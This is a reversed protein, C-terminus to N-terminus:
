WSKNTEERLQSLQERTSADLADVEEGSMNRGVPQGSGLQGGLQEAYSRWSSLFPLLHNANSGRHLKFESRVYGNGLSRMQPPLLRHLQLIRRYLVVADRWSAATPSAGRLPPM